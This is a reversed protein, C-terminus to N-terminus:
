NAPRSRTLPSSTPVPRPAATFSYGQPWTAQATLISNVTHLAWQLAAGAHSLQWTLWARQSVTPEMSSSPVHLFAGGPAQLDDLTVQLADVNTFVRSMLLSFTPLSSAEPPSSQRRRKASNYTAGQSDGSRGRKLTRVPSRPQSRQDKIHLKTHSSDRRHTSEPKDQGKERSRFPRDRQKEELKSSRKHPGCSSVAWSQGSRKQSLVKVEQTPWTNEKGMPSSKSSRGNDGRSESPQKEEAKKDLPQKRKSPVPISMELKVHGPKEVQTESMDAGLAM